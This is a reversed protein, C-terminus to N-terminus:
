GPNVGDRQIQRFTPWQARNPAGDIRPLQVVLVPLNEDHFTKRWSSILLPLTTAYRQADKLTEANSEGQYWVTGRINLHKLRDIGYSWMAGPEFPHRPRNASTESNGPKALWLSLNQKARGRAWEGLLPNTFFNGKTLSATKPNAALTKTSIWAEIPTGGKSCHVIGVPVDPLKAALAKAFYYAVASVGAVSEPSVTAWKGVLYKEPTLRALASDNWKGSGGYPYAVFNLIRIRADSSSKGASEIAAKGAASQKVMWYMNSQGSALWVDGILVDTYTIKGGDGSVTVTQPKSCAKRAALVALWKGCTKCAITSFSDDGLTATVKTGPTATGFIRIPKNRQLVMHDGYASDMALKAHLPSAIAVLLIMMTWARKTSNM